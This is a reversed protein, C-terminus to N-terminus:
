NDVRKYTGRFWFLAGVVKRKESLVTKLGMM